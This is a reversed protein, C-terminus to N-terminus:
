IIKLITSLMKQIDHQPEEATKVLDLNNSTQDLNQNLIVDELAIIKNSNVPKNYLLIEKHLRTQEGINLDKQKNLIKGM